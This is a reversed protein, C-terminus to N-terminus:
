KQNCQKQLEEAREQGWDPYFMAKVTFNSFLTLSRDIEKCYPKISKGFYQASGMDWEAKCYVVRPNDPAITLAKEYLAAVKPSLQMGYTAGDFAIWATHMLAKAVLIEANDPSIGSALELFEQAKGLQASIAKEDKITFSQLTNVLGVYYPPLWNDVEAASIREFLNSAEANKGQKWLAFAEQMGTTYQDQASTLTGFMLLLVVLNKM